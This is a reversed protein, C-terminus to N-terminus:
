GQHARRRSPRSRGLDSSVLVLVETLTSLNDLLISRAIRRVQDRTEPKVIYEVPSKGDIRALMLCGLQKVTDLEFNNPEVLGPPMNLTYRDWFSNVAEFYKWKIDANHVAKLLLHNLLFAVDFAPNGYHAVEFDLLFIGKGTVMINKPSYDGHVLVKKVDLMRQAECRIIEALEPHARATTWHYPDIRLQVFVADDIFQDRVGAAAATASHALGLVAGVKGAVDTDVRGALLQEKWNAGDAPACSMVFLFNDADEYRIIPVTGTPLIRGLTEICARERFIRGQDAFWDEAVRLKRLSQKVVM